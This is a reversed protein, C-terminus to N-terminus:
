QGFMCKKVLIIRIIPSTKKMYFVDGMILIIKTLFHMNPLYVFNRTKFLQYFLTSDTKEDSGNKIQGKQKAKIQLFPWVGLSFKKELFENTKAM